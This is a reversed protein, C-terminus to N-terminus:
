GFLSQDMGSGKGHSRVIATKALGSVAYVLGYPRVFLTAPGCGRCPVGDTVQSLTHVDAYYNTPRKPGDDSRRNSFVFRHSRFSSVSGVVTM